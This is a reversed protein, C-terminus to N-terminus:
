GASAREVYRMIRTVTSRSVGAERAICDMSKGEAKLRLVCEAKHRMAGASSDHVPIMGLSGSNEIGLAEFHQMDVSAM